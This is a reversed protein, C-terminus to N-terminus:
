MENIVPDQRNIESNGVEHTNLRRNGERKSSCSLKVALDLTKTHEKLLM